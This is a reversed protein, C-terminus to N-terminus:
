GVFSYPAFGSVSFPAGGSSVLGTAVSADTDGEGPEAESGPADEVPADSPAEEDSADDSPADEVPAAELAGSVASAPIEDSLVCRVSLVSAYAGAVVTVGVRGALSDSRSGTGAVVVWDSL